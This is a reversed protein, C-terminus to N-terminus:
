KPSKAETRDGSGAKAADPQTEHLDGSRLFKAKQEETLLARIRGASGGVIARTAGVRDDPPVSNDRWVRMVQDRQDMLVRRVGAQQQADLGLQATLLQVRAELRSTPPPWPARHRLTAAARAGTAASNAPAAAAAPAAGQDTAAAALAPQVGICAAVLLCGIPLWSKSQEPRASRSNRIM